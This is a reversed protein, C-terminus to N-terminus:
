ALDPPRDAFFQCLGRDPIQQSAYSFGGLTAMETAAQRIFGLAAGALSSGITVRQVGPEGLQAVSM